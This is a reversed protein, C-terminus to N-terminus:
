GFPLRRTGWDKLQLVLGQDQRLREMDELSEGGLASLLIFAGQSLGRSSQKKPLVREAVAEVGAQRYM